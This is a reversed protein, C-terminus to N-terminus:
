IHLSIIVQFACHEVGLETSSVHQAYVRTYLSAYVLVCVLICRTMLVPLTVYIGPWIWNRESFYHTSLTPVNAPRSTAMAKNPWVARYSPLSMIGSTATAVWYTVVCYGPLCRRGAEQIGHHRLEWRELNASSPLIETIKAFTHTLGNRHASVPPKWVSPHVTFYSM